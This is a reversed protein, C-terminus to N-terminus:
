DNITESISNLTCSGGCGIRSRALSDRRGKLRLERNDGTSNRGETRERRGSPGAMCVTESIVAIGRRTSDHQFGVIRPLGISFGHITLLWIARDIGDGSSGRVRQLEVRTGRASLYFQLDVRVDMTKRRIRKVREGM